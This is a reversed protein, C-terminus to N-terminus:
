SLVVFYGVLPTLVADPSQVPDLSFCSELCRHAEVFENGILLTVSRKEVTPLSIDCLYFHEQLSEVESVISPMVPINEVVVTDILNLSFSENLSAVKLDVQAGELVHPKTNLLIQVTFTVFSRKLTAGLKEM